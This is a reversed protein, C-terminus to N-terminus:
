RWAIRATAPAVAVATKWRVCSHVWLTSRAGSILSPWASSLRAFHLTIHYSQNDAHPGSVVDDFGLNDEVGFGKKVIMTSLWYSITITFRMKEAVLLSVIDSGSELTQIPNRVLYWTQNQHGSLGFIWSFPTLFFLPPLTSIFVFIKLFIDRISLLSM